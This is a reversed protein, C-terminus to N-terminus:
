LPRERYIHGHRIRLNRFLGFLIAASLIGIGGWAVMIVPEYMIADTAKRKLIIGYLAWIVVMGFFVNRKRNIVWVTIMVAIAIMTITWNIPSIGWGSWDNAALCVSINAITAISIWGFYISLPFQTFIKSAARRKADHINLRIHIAILTLLQICILVVSLILLEHTWALLWATTALNNVIFLNGIRRLDTNGPFNEPKKYAGYVHYASFATLSVYILGWISFTIGAPTFVSTYKASVEGVLQDNLVRSQVLFSTVLHIGFSIANILALRKINLRSPM